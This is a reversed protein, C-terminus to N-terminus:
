GCILVLRQKKRGVKVVKHMSPFKATVAMISSSVTALPPTFSHYPYTFSENSFISLRVTAFSHSSTNPTTAPLQKHSSSLSPHLSFLPLFFSHYSCSRFFFYPAFEGCGGGAGGNGQSWNGQGLGFIKQATRDNSTTVSTQLLHPIIISPTLVIEDIQFLLMDTKVNWFKIVNNSTRELRLNQNTISESPDVLTSQQPSCHENNKLILAGPHDLTVNSPPSIPQIQRVQVRFSSNCFPTVLYEYNQSISQASHCIIAFLVVANVRSPMM